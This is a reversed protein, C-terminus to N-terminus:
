YAKVVIGANAIIKAIEDMEESSFAKLGSVPTDRQITYIMVEKPKIKLYADILADLEEPRSNDIKQGDIEGHLFMTQIVGLHTFQCLETIIQNVNKKGIPRNLLTYTSDMATDLKLIPRGCRKLAAVVDPKHLMTANSLVVIPIDVEYCDRAVAMVEDVIACFEPHMTPEGNGAFTIADLKYSQLKMENLRIRLANVLEVRSVLHIENMEGNLGCECYQCDYNCYKKNIPLLNVGLSRGLRRSQVPGFIIDDFLFTPM